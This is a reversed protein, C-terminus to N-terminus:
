KCRLKEACLNGTMRSWLKAFLRSQGSMDPRRHAFGTFRGKDKESEFLEFTFIFNGTDNTLYSTDTGFRLDDFYWTNNEKRIRYYGGSFWLLRKIVPDSNKLAESILEKNKPIRRFPISEVSDAPDLVSYLGIYQETENEAVAKWLMTNFITPNTMMRDYRINQAALAKEFQKEAHLKLCSAFVLYLSSLILGAANLKAAISPNRKSLILAFLLGTLLPVTYLPDIISVINIAARYSSFPLWIQTGYVTCTDLLAHTWLALFVLISWRLGRAYATSKGATQHKKNRYATYFGAAAAAAAAFALSHTIGRHLALQTYESVFPASLVDLDPFLGLFAGYAAAKRGIQRGLVAEGIAAGLTIQTVSDM